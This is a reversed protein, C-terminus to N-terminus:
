YPNRLFRIQSHTVSSSFAYSRMPPKQKSLVRRQGHEGIDRHDLCLGPTLLSCDEVRQKCGAQTVIIQVCAPHLYLTSSQERQESQSTSLEQARRAKTYIDWFLLLLLRTPPAGLKESYLSSLLLCESGRYFVITNRLLSIKILMLM